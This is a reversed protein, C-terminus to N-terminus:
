RAPVAVDTGKRPLAVASRCSAPHHREVHRRRHRARRRRVHDRSRPTEALAQEEGDISIVYPRAQENTGARSAITAVSQDSLWVLGTVGVLSSGLRLPASLRQPLGGTARTVGTVALQPDTGNEATHLIAM